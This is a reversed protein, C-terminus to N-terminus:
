ISRDFCTKFYAYSAQQETINSYVDQQYSSEIYIASNGGRQSIDM